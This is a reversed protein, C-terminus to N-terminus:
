GINIQEGDINFHKETRMKAREAKMRYAGFIKSTLRGFSQQALEEVTEFSHKAFSVLTGTQQELRESKAKVTKIDAQLHKGELETNEFRLNAQKTSLQIKESTLKFTNKSLEIASSWLGAKDKLLARIGNNAALSVHKGSLAVDGAAHFRIDGRPSLVDLGDGEVFIRSRRTSPDYEFLLENEPSYLQRIEGSSPEHCSAGTAILGTVYADGNAVAAFLVQDGSRLPERCCLARKALIYQTDDGLIHLRYQQGIIEIIEAIGSAGPQLPPQHLATINKM